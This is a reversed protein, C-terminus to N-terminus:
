FDKPLHVLGMKELGRLVRLDRMDGVVGATRLAGLGQRSSEGTTAAESIAGVLATLDVRQAAAWHIHRIASAELQRVRERTVGFEGGIERLTRPTGDSLGWRLELIQLARGPVNQTLLEYAEAIARPRYRPPPTVPEQLAAVAADIQTPTSKPFRNRLIFRATGGDQTLLVEILESPISDLTVKLAGSLRSKLSFARQAQRGSVPPLVAPLDRYVRVDFQRCAEALIDLGARIGAPPVYPLRNRLVDSATAPSVTLLHALLVFSLKQRGV